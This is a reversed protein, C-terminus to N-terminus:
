ASRRLMGRWHRVDRNIEDLLRRAWLAPVRAGSEWSRVLIPSVGLLHSFIAQSVGLLDRTKRIGSPDYEAPPEPLEVTRVTYRSAIPVGSDLVDAFEKLSAIIERGKATSRGQKRGGGTKAKTKM